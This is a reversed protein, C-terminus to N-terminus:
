GANTNRREFHKCWTYAGLEKWICFLNDEAYCNCLQLEVSPLPECYRCGCAPTVPQKTEPVKVM